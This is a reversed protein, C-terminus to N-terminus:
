KHLAHWRGICLVTNEDQRIKAYRNAVAFFVDCISFVIDWTPFFVDSMPFFVDSRKEVSTVRQLVVLQM